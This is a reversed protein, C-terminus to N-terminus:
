QFIGLKIRMAATKIRVAHTRLLFRKRIIIWAALCTNTPLGKNQPSSYAPDPPSGVDAVLASSVELTAATERTLRELHARCGKM